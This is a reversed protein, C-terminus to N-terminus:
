CVLRILKSLTTLPDLGDWRPEFALATGIPVIRLPSILGRDLVGKLLTEPNLGYYSVTQLNPKRFVSADLASTLKREFFIGYGGGFEFDIDRSSNVVTINRLNLFAVDDLQPMNLALNNLRFTGLYLEQSELWKVEADVEQWFNFIFEDADSLHKQNEIVWFISSPSSCAMQNFSEFDMCFLRIFRKRQADDLKVLAEYSILSCSIRNPFFIDRCYPKTPFKRFIEITKDTGWIIRSDCVSNLEKIIESDREVQFFFNEKFVWSHEQDLKLENIASLFLSSSDDLKSPLKIINSNGSVFGWLFSYAFGLPVNNPAVHFCLGTGVRTYGPVDYFGELELVQKVYRAFSLL